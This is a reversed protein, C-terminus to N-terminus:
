CQLCLFPHSVSLHTKARNSLAAINSNDWHTRLRTAAGPRARPQTPSREQECVGHRGGEGCQVDAAQATAPAPPQLCHPLCCLSHMEASTCYIGRCTSPSPFLSIGWRYSVVRPDFIQSLAELVEIDESLLTDVENFLGKPRTAKRM